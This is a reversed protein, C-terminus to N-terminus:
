DTNKYDDDEDWIFYRTLMPVVFLAMVGGILWAMKDM